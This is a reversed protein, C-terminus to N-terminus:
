ARQGDWSNRNKEDESDNGDWSNRNKEDEPDNKSWLSYSKHLSDANEKLKSSLTSFLIKMLGLGYLAYTMILLQGLITEPVVDGLGVTTITVFAFYTAKWLGWDEILIMFLTGISFLSVLGITVIKLKNHKTAVVMINIKLDKVLKVFDKKTVEQKELHREVTSTKYTIELADLAKKYEKLTLTDGEKVGM